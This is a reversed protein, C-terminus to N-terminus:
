FYKFTPSHKVGVFVLVNQLIIKYISFHSIKVCAIFGKFQKLSQM